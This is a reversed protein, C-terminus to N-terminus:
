SLALIWLHDKLICSGHVLLVHGLISVLDNNAAVISSDVVGADLRTELVCCSFSVHHKLVLVTPSPDM